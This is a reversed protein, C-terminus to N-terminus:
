CFTASVFEQKSDSRKHCAPLMSSVSPQLRVQSTSNHNLLDIVPLLAVEHSGEPSYKNQFFAAAMCATFAYRCGASVQLGDDVAQEQNGNGSVMFKSMELNQPKKGRTLHLCDQAARQVVDQKPLRSVGADTCAAHLCCGPMCLYLLDRYPWGLAYADNMVTLKHAPLPQLILKQASLSQLILHM